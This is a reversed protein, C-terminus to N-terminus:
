RDNNQTVQRSSRTKKRVEGLMTLKNNVEFKVQEIRGRATECERILVSGSEVYKVTTAKLDSSSAHRNDACIKQLKSASGGRCALSRFAKDCSLLDNLISELLLCYEDLEARQRVLPDDPIAAAKRTVKTEVFTAGDHFKTSLKRAFRV